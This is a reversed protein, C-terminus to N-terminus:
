QKSTMSAQAAKRFRDINGQHDRYENRDMTFETEYAALFNKYALEAANQDKNIGAIQFELIYALLHKPASQRLINIQERAKKIDSATLHILALHYRADNDLAELNNYANVGMPVFRLAEELKGNESAMMIRNFLRDAAERPTMTALDPPQGQGPNTTSGAIPLDFPSTSQPMNALGHPSAPKDGEDHASIAVVLAIVSIALAAWSAISHVNWQQDQNRM